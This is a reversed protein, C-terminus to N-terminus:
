FVNHQVIILESKRIKETRQSSLYSQVSLPAKKPNKYTTVEDARLKPAISQIKDSQPTVM